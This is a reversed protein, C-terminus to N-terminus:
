DAKPAKLVIHKVASIRYLYKPSRPGAEANEMWSDSGLNRKRWRELRKRVSEPKRDFMEALQRSGAFANEGLHNGADAKALRDTGEGTGADREGQIDKQIEAGRREKWDWAIVKQVMDNVSTIQSLDDVGIAEFVALWDDHNQLDFTEIGRDRLRQLEAETAQQLEEFLGDAQMQEFIPKAKDAAAKVNASFLAKTEEPLSEWNM